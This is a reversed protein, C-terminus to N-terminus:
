VVLLLYVLVAALVMGLELSHFSTRMTESQGHVHVKTAPPLPGLGAVVRDIADAVSGLDRGDVGLRVELVRQVADHSILSPARAPGVSGVDALQPALGPRPAFPRPPLVPPTSADSGSGEAASALQRPDGTIPTALLADISDAKALPTQVAVI